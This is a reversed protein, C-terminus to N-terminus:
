RRLARTRLQLNRVQAAKRKGALSVKGAEVNLAPVVALIESSLTYETPVGLFDVVILFYDGVELAVGGTENTVDAGVGFDVVVLSDPRL